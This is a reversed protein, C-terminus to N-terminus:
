IISIFIEVLKPDLKNGAYSRLTKVAEEKSMAKRYPRDTTLADYIDAVALMRSTLPIDEGMLGDPYGSGDYMEHHHRVLSSLKSMTRLPKLINEGIISHQKMISYEEESFKGEKKLISDQIGVKGLDHLIAGGILMKKTEPELKLRDAMKSVYKSVRELHGASYPDKAEVVRALTILTQYYTEEINKNLAFNELSTAIQGAINEMLFLDDTDIKDTDLLDSVGVVGKVEDKEIIPVCLITTYKLIEERYQAPLNDEVGGKKIIMPKKNKIVFGMVGKNDPLQMNENLDRQSGSYAKLYLKRSDPEYLTIFSSEGRLVKRVSQNILTLLADMRQSSTIAHGIKQFLERTLSRSYELEAIKKELDATIRNFASALDKLEDRRAVVIKEDLNGEAINKAKNILQLIAKVPRRILIFGFIGSAVMWFIVLRAYGMTADINKNVIVNFIVYLALLLPIIFMFFAALILQTYLGEYEISVKKNIENLM